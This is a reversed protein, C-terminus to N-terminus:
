KCTIQRTSVIPANHVVIMLYDHTSVSVTLRNTQIEAEKTIIHQDYIKTVHATNISPKLKYRMLVCLTCFYSLRRRVDLQGHTENMENCHLLSQMICDHTWRLWCNFIKLNSKCGDCIFFCPRRFSFFVLSNSRGTGGVQSRGVWSIWCIVVETITRSHGM